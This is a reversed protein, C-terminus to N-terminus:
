RGARNPLNKGLNLLLELGLGPVSRAILVVRRGYIARYLRPESHGAFFPSIINM